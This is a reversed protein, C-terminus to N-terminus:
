LDAALWRIPWAKFRVNDDYLFDETGCCQYLLPKREAVIPQKALHFLDNASGPLQALDGFITQMERQWAADEGDATAAIDARGFAPPPPTRDPYTLALKFAGYGGMSLGAVFTDERAGSL